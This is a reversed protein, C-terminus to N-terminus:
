SEARLMPNKSWAYEAVIVNSNHGERVRLVVIEDDPPQASYAREIAARGKFPGVPIGEFHMEANASFHSAMPRFDRSHVGENFLKVHRNLIDAASM